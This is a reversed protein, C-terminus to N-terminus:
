LWDRMLVRLEEAKENKAWGGGMTSDQDRFCLNWKSSGKEPKRSGKTVSSRAVLIRM